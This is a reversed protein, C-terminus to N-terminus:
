SSIKKYINHFYKDANYKKRIKEYHNQDFISWFQEETYYCRAFLIKIGKHARTIREIEQNAKIPDIKEIGYRGYIGVDCFYPEDAVADSWFLYPKRLNVIPMLWLPYVNVIGSIDKLTAALHSFPVVVDQIIRSQEKEDVSKKASQKRVIDLDYFWGFLYRMLLHDSTKYRLLWFVSKNHRFYYDTLRMYFNISEQNKIKKEIYRYYWPCWYHKMSYLPAHLSKEAVMDGCITTLLNDSYSIGEIFECKALKNQLRSIYDNTNSDRHITLLVYPKAPIIKIWVGVLLALSGYSGPLAYFLDSFENKANITLLTGDGLLVEYAICCDHVSGYKHSSSEGGLGIIAGGLTIGPLEPVVPLTLGQSLLKKCCSKMTILPEILAISKKKDIIVIENLTSIDILKSYNKYNLSHNCHYEYKSRKIALKSNKHNHIYNKIQQQVNLIDKHHNELNKM